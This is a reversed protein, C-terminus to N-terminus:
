IGILIIWNVQGDELRELISKMILSLLFFKEVNILEFFHTTAASVLGDPCIM